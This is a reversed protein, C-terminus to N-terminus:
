DRPLTCILKKVCDGLGFLSQLVPYSSLYKLHVTDSVLDIKCKDKTIRMYGNSM